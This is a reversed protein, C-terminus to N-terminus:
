TPVAQVGYRDYLLRSSALDFRCMIIDPEPEPASSPRNDAGGGTGVGGGEESAITAGGGVSATGDGGAAILQRGTPPAKAKAQAYLEGNALELLLQAQRCAGVEARMAAVFVLKDNDKAAGLVVDDFNRGTLEKLKRMKPKKTPPTSGALYRGSAQSVAAPQPLVPNQQLLAELVEINNMLKGNKKQWYFSDEETNREGGADPDKARAMRRTTMAKIRDVESATMSDAEGRWEGGISTTAYFHNESDDGAAPAVSKDNKIKQEHAYFSDELSKMVGSMEPNSIMDSRPNLRARQLKGAELKQALRQQLTVPSPIAVQIKGAPGRSSNEMYSDYRRLKESCDFERVVGAAAFKFSCEQRSRFTCQLSDNLFVTLPEAPPSGAGQKTPDWRWKRRVTGDAGAISGGDLNWLVKKGSSLAFGESKESSFGILTGKSDDGYFFFKKQYSSFKSVCVAVNGSPYYVFGAGESDFRLAKSGNPYDVSEDFHAADEAGARAAAHAADTRLHIKTMQM